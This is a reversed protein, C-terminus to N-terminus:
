LLDKRALAKDDNIPEMVRRWAELGNHRPVNAFARKVTPDNKVLAGILAWLQRSVEDHAHDLMLHECERSQVIEESQAECWKLVRDVEQTRGALYDRLDNAWSQPAKSDYM